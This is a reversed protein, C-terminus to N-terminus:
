ELWSRLPLWELGLLRLLAGLLWGLLGIHLPWVPDGVLTTTELLDSVVTYSSPLSSRMVM